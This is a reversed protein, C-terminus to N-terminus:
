DQLFQGAITGAIRGPGTKTHQSGNADEDASDQLLSGPGNSLSIRAIDPYVASGRQQPRDIDELRRAAHAPDSEAARGFAGYFQNCSLTAQRRSRQSRRPCGHRLSHLAPGQTSPGPSKSIAGPNRPGGM